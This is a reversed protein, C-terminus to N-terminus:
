VPLKTFTQKIARLDLLVSASQLRLQRCEDSEEPGNQFRRRRELPVPMEIKEAVVQCLDCFTLAPPQDDIDRRPAHLRQQARHKIGDPSPDGHWLPSEHKDAVGLLQAGVMRDEPAVYEVRLVVASIPSRM